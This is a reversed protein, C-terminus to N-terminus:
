EGTESEDDTVDVVQALQYANFGEQSMEKIAEENKPTLKLEKGTPTTEGANIKKLRGLVNNWRAVKPKLAKAYEDPREYGYLMTLFNSYEVDLNKSFKCMIEDFIIEPALEPRDNIQVADAIARVRAKYAAEDDPTIFYEFLRLDDRCLVTIMGYPLNRGIKYHTDQYIHSSYPKKAKEIRTMVTEAVSKCEIASPALEVGEYKDKLRACIKLFMVEMSSPLYMNRIDHEAKDFDFTGQIIFDGKGKVPIGYDRTWIEDQKEMVVGARMMVMTVMHEFFNGAQFKRRARDTPQNSPKTGRLSLWTDIFPKSLQSAWLYDRSVPDRDERIISANWIDAIRLPQPQKM